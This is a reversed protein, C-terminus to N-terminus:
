LVSQHGHFDHMKMGHTMYKSYAHDNTNSNQKEIKQVKCVDVKQTLKKLKLKRNKQDFANKDEKCAPKTKNKWNKQAESIEKYM